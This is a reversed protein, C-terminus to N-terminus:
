ELAEVREIGHKELIDLVKPASEKSCVFDIQANDSHGERRASSVTFWPRGAITEDIALAVLDGVQDTNGRVHFRVLDPTLEFGPKM